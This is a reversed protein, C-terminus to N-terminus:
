TARRLKSTNIDGSNGDSIEFTGKEEREVSLLKRAAEFVENASIDRLCSLNSCRNKECPQCDLNKYIVVYKEPSMYPHFLKPDGPGFIGVTPTRRAAAIHMPGSDNTILLDLQSLTYALENITLRGALSTVGHKMNREVRGAVDEEGPGGFLIIKANFCEVLCDAVMAYKGADWRRNKRDGGPNIGVRIQRVHESETSFLHLWRKESKQDWFVEIDKGDERAGALVSIEMMADSFHRNQFTGTPVEKNLFVRFCKSGHGIRENGKIALFLLGM